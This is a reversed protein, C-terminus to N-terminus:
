NVDRVRFWVLAIVLLAAAYALVTTTARTMTIVTATAPSGAHGDVFVVTNTAFLYPTLKPVISRFLTELLALYVFIAGLAAATGRGIMSIAIGLMAGVVGMVGVRLILGAAHHLWVGDAGSTSGRTVAVVWLVGSLVLQLGVVLVFVTLGVAVARALFVRVRRPEWTILTAMSGAQWDAGVSSAGIVLGLVILLFATGRLTDPLSSLQYEAAFGSHVLAGSPVPHSKVATILGSLGIGVLALMVLVWVLRRSRIRLAESRLLAIV